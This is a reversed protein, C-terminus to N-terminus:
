FMVFWDNYEQTTPLLTGILFFLPLYSHLTDEASLLFLLSTLRM